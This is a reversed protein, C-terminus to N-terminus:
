KKPAIMALFTFGCFKEHSVLRFIENGPVTM